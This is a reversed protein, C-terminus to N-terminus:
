CWNASKGVVDRWWLAQVVNLSVWNVGEDVGGKDEAAACEERSDPDIDGTRTGLINDSLEDVLFEDNLTLSLLGHDLVEISIDRSGCSETSAANTGEGDESVEHSSNTGSSTNEESDCDNVLVELLNGLLLFSASVCEDESGVIL